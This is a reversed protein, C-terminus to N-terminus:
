SSAAPQGALDRLAVVVEDGDDHRGLVRVAAVRRPPLVLVAEVQVAVPEGAGLRLGVALDFQQAAVRRLDEDVRVLHAAPLVEERRVGVRDVVLDGVLRDVPDVPDALGVLRSRSCRRRRRRRDGGLAVEVVVGVVHEEHAVAVGHRGGAEARGAHRVLLAARRRGLRTWCCNLVWHAVTPQAAASCARPARRSSRVDPAVGLRLALCPAQLGVLDHLGVLSTWNGTGSMLIREYKRSGSRWSASTAGAPRAAAASPRRPTGPALRRGAASRAPRRRACRSSGSRAPPRTSSGSPGAASASSGPSSPRPDRVDRERVEVVDRGPAVRQQHADVGDVGPVVGASPAAPGRARRRRRVRGPARPSTCTGAPSPAAASSVKRRSPRPTASRRSARACTTVSGARLSGCPRSPSAALEPHRRAARRGGAAGRDGQRTPSNAPVPM